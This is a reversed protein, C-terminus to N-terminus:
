KFENNKEEILMDQYILAKHFELKGAEILSCMQLKAMNFKLTMIMKLEM